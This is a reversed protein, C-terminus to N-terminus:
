LFNLISCILSDCFVLSFVICLYILEPYEEGFSVDEDYSQMQPVSFMGSSPDSLYYSRFYCSTLQSVTEELFPMM